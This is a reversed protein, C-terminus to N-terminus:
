VLKKQGNGQPYRNEGLIQKINSNPTQGDKNTIPEVEKITTTIKKNNM